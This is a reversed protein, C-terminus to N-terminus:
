ISLLYIVLTTYLLFKYYLWFLFVTTCFVLLIQFIGLLIDKKFLVRMSFFPHFFYKVFGICKLVYVEIVLWRKFKVSWPDDDM